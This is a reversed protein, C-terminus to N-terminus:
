RILSNLVLSIGWYLIMGVRLAAPFVPVFVVVLSPVVFVLTNLWPNTRALLPKELVLYAVFYVALIGLFSVVLPVVDVRDTRSITSLGAFLIFLLGFILRVCRGCSTIDRGITFKIHTTM